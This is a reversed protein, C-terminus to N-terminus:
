QIVNAMEFMPLAMSIVIFGIIGAMFILMIPEMVTTMRQLSVEVEEDYFDATKSLMDDLAGSEEGIRVMSDVMPPFVEVSKIANGLTTGKRIDEVSNLIRKEIVSNGIAKAVIELAQLLSIGSSMLTSLTRTFRATIIKITTNKIGPFKIKLGDIADRGDDTQKYVNIGVVLGVIITTLIYWKSRIFNSINILTQTMGPLEQGSSEFMEIFTPFVFVLMFIVVAISVVALAIPYILSSKVKNELKYDKEYHTAMRDMIADLNGSVEGAEVMNVLLSPFIKGEKKMADSLSIGKQVEEHLNGITVKFNKNETQKELIDLTKVIGIGADLMTYFQRCFVALDRKGIKKTFLQIQKETALDEEIKLPINKNNRLMSIVEAESSAEYTGELIGGSQNIAKYKFIM